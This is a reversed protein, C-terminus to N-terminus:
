GRVTAASTAANWSVSVSMRASMRALITALIETDHLAPKVGGGGRANWTAVACAVVASDHRRPSPGTSRQQSCVNALPGAHDRSEGDSAASQSRGAASRIGLSSARRRGSVFCM